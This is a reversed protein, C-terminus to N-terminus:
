VRNKKQKKIASNVSELLGDVNFPKKIFYAQPDNNINKLIQDEHYGSILLVPTTLGKGRIQQYVETGSMKPMTCDLVFIVFSEGEDQVHEIAEKGDEVSELQFGDSELISAILSRIRPDDEALLVRGKVEGGPASKGFKTVTDIDSYSIVPFYAAFESGEGRRSSVHIFGKHQRVIGLLSSLGLGKRTDKESYFPDFIKGFESADMGRGNDKVKLYLYAGEEPETAYFSDRLLREDVDTIGTSIEIIGPKDEIADVSNAVLNMLVQGLQVQDGKMAPLSRSIKQVLQVKRPVISNILSSMNDVVRSIDLSEFEIAGKGAYTLMQSTLDVAQRAGSMVMYLDKRVDSEAPLKKMALSAYGLISTLMNNFDHAIGGAMVGLSELKQAQTFQLELRRNELEYEELRTNQNNLNQIVRESISMVLVAGIMTLIIANYFYVMIFPLTGVTQFPLMLKLVIHLGLLGILWYYIVSGGQRNGILYSMCTFLLVLSPLEAAIWVLANFNGTVNIYISIGLYTLLSALIMNLPVKRDMLHAICVLLLVAFVVKLIGGIVYLSTYAVLLTAMLYVLQTIMEVAVAAAGFKLYRYGTKNFYYVLSIFLILDFFLIFSFSYILNLRQSDM